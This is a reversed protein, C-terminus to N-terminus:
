KTQFLIASFNVSVGESLVWSVGPLEAFCVCICSVDLCGFLIGFSFYTDVSFRYRTISSPWNNYDYIYMTFISCWFMMFKPLFVVLWGDLYLFLFQTSTLSSPAYLVLLQILNLVVIIFDPRQLYWNKRKKVYKQRLRM